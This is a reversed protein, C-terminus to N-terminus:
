QLIVAMEASVQVSQMEKKQTNPMYFISLSGGLFHSSISSGKISRKNPVDEKSNPGGQIQQFRHGWRCRAQSGLVGEEMCCSIQGNPCFFSM